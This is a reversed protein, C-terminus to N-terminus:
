CPESWTSEPESVFFSSLPNPPVPVLLQEWEVSTVARSTSPPCADIARVVQRTSVGLAQAFTRHTRIGDDLMAHLLEINLDLIETGPWNLHASVAPTATVPEWIQHAQLFAQGYRDIEEQLELTMRTRFDTYQAVDDHTFGLQLEAPLQDSSTASLRQWLYRRAHRLRPAGGPDTHVSDALTEWHTRPLMEATPLELRRRYNIPNPGDDITRALESIGALLATTQAPTGLMNARLVAALNSEEHDRAQDNLGVARVAITLAHALTTADVNGGLDFRSCWAPWLLEPIRDRRTQFYVTRARHADMTAPTIATDWLIRQTLTLDQDHARLVWGRLEDSAGPWRTLLETPSGPGYGAGRPVHAPPRAFTTRRVVPASVFEGMNVLAWAAGILGAMAYANKPASIGVHKEEDFLGRLEQEDLGSLSSVDDFAGAGRLATAVPQLLTVIHEGTGARLHAFIAEQAALPASGPALRLHEWTDELPARCYTRRTAGRLGIHARCSSPNFLDTNRGRMEVVEGQCTPCADLLIRRHAVCAYTWPSRWLSRFVGPEDRLCDPCYRTGAQWSWPGRKSIGAAPQGKRRDRLVLLSGDFVEMTAARLRAEEIGTAYSINAAIAPHLQTGINTVAAALLNQLGFADFMAARSVRFSHAWRSIASHLWEGELLRVPTGLRMPTDLVVTM